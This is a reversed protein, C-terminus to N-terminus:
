FGIFCPLFAFPYARRVTCKADRSRDGEARTRRKTQAAYHHGRKRLTFVALLVATRAACPKPRGKGFQLAQHLPTSHSSHWPQPIPTCDPGTREAHMTAPPLFIVVGWDQM